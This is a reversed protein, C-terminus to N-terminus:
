KGGKGKALAAAGEQSPDGVVFMQHAIDHWTPSNGSDAAAGGSAGSSGGAAAPGKAADAGSSGEAGPLIHSTVSDPGFLHVVIGSPPPTPEMRAFAPAALSLALTSGLLLRFPHVMPEM